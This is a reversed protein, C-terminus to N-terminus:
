LLGGLGVSGRSKQLIYLIFFDSAYAVSKIYFFKPFTVSKDKSFIDKLYRDDSVFARESM